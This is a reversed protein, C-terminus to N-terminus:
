KGKLENEMKDIYKKLKGKKDASRAKKLSDKAKDTKGAKDLARAYGLHISPDDPALSLAEEYHKEAKDPKNSFHYCSGLTMNALPSKPNKKVLDDGVAIAKDYDKKKRHGYMLFFGATDKLKDSGKFIDSLDKIGEQYEPTDTGTDTSMALMANSIMGFSKSDKEQKAIDKMKKIRDLNKRDKGPKQGQAKSEFQKQEHEVVNILNDSFEWEANKQGKGKNLTKKAERLYNKSDEIDYRSFGAVIAMTAYPLPNDPDNDAIDQLEALVKIRPEAVTGALVKEMKELTESAM